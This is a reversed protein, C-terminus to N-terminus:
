GRRLGSVLFSHLSIFILSLDIQTIERDRMVKLVRGIPSQLFNLVGLTFCHSIEIAGGELNTVSPYRPAHRNEISKFFIM